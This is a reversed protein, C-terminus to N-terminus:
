PSAGILVASLTACACISTALSSYVKLKTGKHVFVRHAFCQSDGREHFATMAVYAGNLRLWVGLGGSWDTCEATMQVHYMGAQVFTVETADASLDFMGNRSHVCKPWAMFEKPSTAATTQLSLYLAADKSSISTTRPRRLVTM